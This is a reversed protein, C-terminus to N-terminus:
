GLQSQDPSVVARWRFKLGEYRSVYLASGVVSFWFRGTKNGNEDYEYIIFRGWTTKGSQIISVFDTHVIIDTVNMWWVVNEGSTPDHYRMQVEIDVHMNNIGKLKTDIIPQAICYVGHFDDNGVADIQFMPGFSEIGSNCFALPFGGQANEKENFYIPGHLVGGYRSMKTNLPENKDGFPRMKKISGQAVAVGNHVIWISCLRVAGNGPNVPIGAGGAEAFIEVDEEREHYDDIGAGNQRFDSYKWKPRAFVSVYRGGTAPKLGSLDVDVPTIQKMRGGGSWGVLGSVNVGFGPNMPVIDVAFYSAGICEAALNNTHKNLTNHADRFETYTVPERFCHRNEKRSM